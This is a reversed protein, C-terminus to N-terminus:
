LQVIWTGSGRESTENGQAALRSSVKFVFGFTKIFCIANILLKSFFFQFHQDTILETVFIDFLKKQKNSIKAPIRSTFEESQQRNSGALYFQM